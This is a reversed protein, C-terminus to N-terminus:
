LFIFDLGKSLFLFISLIFEWLCWARPATPPSSVRFPRSRPNRDLNGSRKMYKLEHFTGSVQFLHGRRASSGRIRRGRPSVGCVNFKERTARLNYHSTPFSRSNQRPRWSHSQPTSSSVGFKSVEIYKKTNVCPDGFVSNSARLQCRRYGQCEREIIARSDSYGPCDTTSVKGGCLHEGTKRGYYASM